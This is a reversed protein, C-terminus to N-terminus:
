RKKETYWLPFVEFVFVNRSYGAEEALCFSQRRGCLLTLIDSRADNGEREAYVFMLIYLDQINEYIIIYSTYKEETDYIYM